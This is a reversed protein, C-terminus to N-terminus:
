FPIDDDFGSDGAMAPAMDQNHSEAEPAAYSGGGGGGAGSGGRSDLMQMENAVIETTYRDQGQQDQWKRTQLRGEIYIKSGKKLYEGAIEALKRFMVIRHWETKEQAAGSAKDKWAESTAITITAVPQGNPMYRVEPDKGLNGILMVKNLTGKAM